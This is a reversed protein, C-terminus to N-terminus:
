QWSWIGLLGDALYRPERDGTASAVWIAPNGDPAILSLVLYRSDPSWITVTRTFQDFGPVMNLFEDTPLITTVFNSSGEGLHRVFTQFFVQDSGSGPATSDQPISPVFYALKESDPAWFFTFVLDDIFEIPEDPREPDIVTLPGLIGFRTLDGDIVYAIKEGDPSWAFGIAGEFRVLTSIKRGSRDAMILEDPGSLNRVALLLSQGDPSWAPTHFAAPEFSLTEERVEDGPFILSIRGSSAPGERIALQRSDPSWDLYYPSGTDLIRTEGGEAPVLKLVQSGPEVQSVFSIKEGDPSWFIYHSIESPHSSLTRTDSGDPAALYLASGNVQWNNRNHRVFALDEGATSWTIYHYDATSANDAPLSGDETLVTLNDGTQDVTYINYDPGIYAILGSKAELFRLLPSEPLRIGDPVCGALLVAALLVLIPVRGNSIKVTGIPSIRLNNNM